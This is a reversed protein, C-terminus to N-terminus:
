WFAFFFGVSLSVPFFLWIIVYESNGSLLQQHAFPKPFFSEWPFNVRTNVICSKKKLLGHDGLTMHLMKIIDKAQKTKKFNDVVLFFFFLLNLTCGIIEVWFFFNFLYLLFTFVLMSSCYVLNHHLMTTRNKKKWLNRIKIKVKQYIPKLKHGVMMGSQGYFITSTTKKKKQMNLM